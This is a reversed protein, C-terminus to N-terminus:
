RDEPLVRRIRSNFMDLIYMAGDEDFSVGAPRHLAAETPPGGDGSFGEDGNGAVTTITGDDLDVARIRQNNQDGIYLRDDPGVALKYPSDLQAETAPGDDGSFGAKGTGAITTIEGSEHDVRRIRHNLTDSVYLNGDDDLALGGGPPPNSGAPFNLKAKTAPGGDGAFGAELPTGAFTDIIGDPDIIRVVQNRQDLIYQNGDDDLVLTNPQNLLAKAMPGGDGGFGAGRGCIVTVLGTDPDYRRLKHNHWAVLTLTGDPMPVVQTPHNLLVDTGPAGPPKLDSMDDPGDGVFDSGIITEFTGDDLIQRVRHNNWDLVFTGLESFELDIPWYMHSEAIPKGDGNFGLEGTGAWTCIVGPEDICDVPTSADGGDSAQADQAAADQAGSSSDGCGFAGAAAISVIAALKTLRADTRSTV